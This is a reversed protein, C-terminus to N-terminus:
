GSPKAHYCSVPTCSGCCVFSVFTCLLIYVRMCVYVGVGVGVCGCVWVWVWGGVGWVWVWGWVWGCVCVHGYRVSPCFRTDINWILWAVLLRCSIVHSGTLCYQVRCLPLSTHTYPPLTLHSHSSHTHSTLTLLSHSTHTLLSHSIHTLLPLSSHSSHPHSSHSYSSHTHPTHTLLTLTSHSHSSHSHSSHSFSHLTLLTLSSYSHPTHSSNSHPNLVLSGPTLCHVIILKVRVPYVICWSCWM